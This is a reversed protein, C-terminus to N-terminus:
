IARSVIRAAGLYAMAIVAYRLLALYPCAKSIPLVFRKGMVTFEEDPLCSGQRSGGGVGNNFQNMLGAVDSDFEGQIVAQDAIAKAKQDAIKKLDAETPGALMACRNSWSQNLISCQFVDGDCTPAIKCDNSHDAANGEDDTGGGNTPPENGDGGSGDGDGGGTGGDGDGGSGGDGGGDNGGGGGGGGGGGSGDDGGGPNAPDTPDTPDKPPLKYCTTGSVGWGPPCLTPPPENPDPPPNLPTGSIALQYKEASCSQGTGKIVYNCYGMSADAGSIYCGSSRTEGQVGSYSCSNYCVGTPPQSVVIKSGDGATIISSDAGRAPFLDGEKCDNDPPSDCAAGDASGHECTIDRRIWSGFQFNQTGVKGYCAGSSEGGGTAAYVYSTSNESFVSQCAESKSLKGTSEWSGYKGHYRVVTTAGYTESVVLLCLGLLLWRSSLPTEIVSLGM